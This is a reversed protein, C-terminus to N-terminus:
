NLKYNVNNMATLQDLFQNSPNIKLSKSPLDLSVNQERDYVVFNLQCNQQETNQKNEEVLEYIKTIFDESIGQIPVQITICKALKDRLDSLLAISTIKFEWDGEKRFREGVRGRIQLF